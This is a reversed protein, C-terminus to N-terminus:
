SRSPRMEDRMTLSTGPTFRTTYSMLLLGGAVISHSYGRGPQGHWTGRESLFLRYRQAVARLQAGPHGCRADHVVVPPQGFTQTPSSAPTTEASLGRRGGPRRRAVGGPVQGARRRRATPSIASSPPRCSIRRLIGGASSSDRGTPAAASRCPRSGSPGRARPASSACGAPARAAARSRPQLLPLAACLKRLAAAESRHKGTGRAM